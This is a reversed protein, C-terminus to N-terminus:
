MCKYKNQQENNRYGTKNFHCKNVIITTKQKRKNFQNKKKKLNTVKFRIVKVQKNFYSVDKKFYM